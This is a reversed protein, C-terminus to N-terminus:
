AKTLAEYIEKLERPMVAEWYEKREKDTFKMKHMLNLPIIHGTYERDVNIYRCSEEDDEDYDDNEEEVAQTVVISAEQMPTQKVGYFTYSPGDEINRSRSYWLEQEEPVFILLPIM